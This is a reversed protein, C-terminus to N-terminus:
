PELDKPALLGAGELQGNLWEPINEDLAFHQHYMSGTLARPDYKWWGFNFGGKGISMDYGLARVAKAITNLSSKQTLRYKFQYTKSM